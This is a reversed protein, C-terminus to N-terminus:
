KNESIAINEENGSNNKHALYLFVFTGIGLIAGLISIFMNIPQMILIAIIILWYMMKNSIRSVFYRNVAISFAFVGIMMM